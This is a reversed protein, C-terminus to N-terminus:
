HVTLHETYSGKTVHLLEDIYVCVTYLVVFIESMKEQFIDPSNCLGMFLQQYEYKGWETFFKCLEKSKASMENHCYGMILYLITGYRFGELRLLLDQIKPILYLQRLIFKNLEIFDSIFHVTIDKNPILLKPAVWQSRSCKKIIYIAKLRDHEQIFKLEHILPVSFPKEHYPEADPKHKIDYPKGNWTGLNGDFM